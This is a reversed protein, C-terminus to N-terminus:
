PRRRGMLALGLAGTAFLAATGPEPVHALRIDRKAIKALSFPHFSSEARLENVFRVTARELGLGSLDLEARATWHTLGRDGPLSLLGDPDAVLDVRWSDGGAIVELTGTVSASTRGDGDAFLAKLLAFGSEEVVVTDLFGTKAVLELELVSSTTDDLGGIGLAFFLHPDFVLADGDVDPRGFRPLWGRPDERVDLFDVTEGWRDGYDFDSGHHIGTAGAAPALVLLLLLALLTAALRPM